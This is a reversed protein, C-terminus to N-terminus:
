EEVSDFVQSLQLVQDSKLSSQYAASFGLGPTAYSSDAKGVNVTVYWKTNRM